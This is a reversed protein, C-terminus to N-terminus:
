CHVLLDHWIELISGYRKGHKRFRHVDIPTPWSFYTAQKSDQPMRPPNGSEILKVAKLLLEAGIDASKRALSIVSDDHDVPFQEQVLIHGTDFKADVWHITVGTEADGNALVWFYISIVLDPKWAKITNFPKGKNVNKAKIIPVHYEHGMDLLSPVSTKKGTYRVFLHAFRGLLIEMGKPLVFGWGTESFLFRLSQWTTKGAIITDSCVIGVVHHAYETLLRHTIANAQPSEYTLIVIQM